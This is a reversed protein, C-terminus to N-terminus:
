RFEDPCKMAKLIESSKFGRRMLFQYNRQFEKQDCNKRDYKRKRLLEFIQELEDAEYEEEIATSILDRNIGKQMLKQKIQQKSLKEQHFRIYNCAYRM